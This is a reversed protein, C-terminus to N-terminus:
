PQRIESDTQGTGSISLLGQSITLEQLRVNGLEPFIETLDAQIATSSDDHPVIAIGAAQAQEILQKLLRHAPVPLAGAQIQIVELTLLNGPELTPKLTLSVIGSYESHELRCGIRVLGDNLDVLPERIESPWSPSRGQSSEKILWANIQQQSFQIQWPKKAEISKALEEAQHQFEEAAAQQLKSDALQQRATRYFEPEKRLALLVLTLGLIVALLAVILLWFLWVWLRKRGSTVAPSHSERPIPRLKEDTQQNQNTEM